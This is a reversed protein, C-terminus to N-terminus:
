PVVCALLAEPKGHLGSASRTQWALWSRRLSAVAARGGKPSSPARLADSPPPQTDAILESEFRGLFCRGALACPGGGDAASRKAAVEGRRPPPNHNRERPTRTREVVSALLAEPKGHLGSASRTQWALWSRRLSAVTARGGKPSSPARLADSPPHQMPLAGGFVIAPTAWLGCLQCGGMGEM